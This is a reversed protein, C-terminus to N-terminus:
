RYCNLTSLRELLPPINGISGCNEYLSISEEYSARAKKIDGELQFMEGMIEKTDAYGPKDEIRECIDASAGLLRQCRQWDKMRIAVLAQVRQNEAILRQNGLDELQSEMDSCISQALTVDGLRILVRAYNIYSNLLNRVSGLRELSEISRRHCDAASQWDIFREFILGMNTEIEAIGLPSCIKHNYELSTQYFGIAEENRGEAYAVNGLNGSCIAIGKDNQCGQALELADSLISNASAWDGKLYALLGINTKAAMTGINDKSRHYQSLSANYLRNATEWRSRDRYISGLRMLADGQQKPSNFSRALQFAKKCRSASTSYDGTEYYIQGLRLNLEIVADTEVTTLNSYITELQEWYATAERYACM